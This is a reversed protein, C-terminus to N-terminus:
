KTILKSDIEGRSELRLSESRGYCHTGNVFGASVAVFTKRHWDHDPGFKIREVSDFMRDHHICKPFIIILEESNEEDRDTIVIYKMEM